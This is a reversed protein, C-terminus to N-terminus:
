HSGHGHNLRGQVDEDDRQERPHHGAADAITERPSIDESVDQEHRRRRPAMEHRLFGVVAILFAACVLLSPTLVALDRM